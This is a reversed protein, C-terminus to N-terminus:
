IEDLSEDSGSTIRKLEDLNECFFTIASSKKTQQLQTSSNLEVGDFQVNEDKNTANNIEMINPTSEVYDLRNSADGAGNDNIQNLKSEVSSPECDVNESFDTCDTNSLVEILPGCRGKEVSREKKNTDSIKFVSQEFIMESKTCINLISPSQVDHAEKEFNDMPYTVTSMESTNDNLNMPAEIKRSLIRENRKTDNKIKSKFSESENEPMEDESQTMKIVNKGGDIADQGGEIANQGGEIANKSSNYENQLTESECVPWEDSQSLMLEMEFEHNEFSQSSNNKDMIRKIEDIPDVSLEKEMADLSKEILRDQATIVTEVDKAKIEGNENDM